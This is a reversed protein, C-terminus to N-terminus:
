VITLNFGRLHAKAECLRESPVAEIDALMYPQGLREYKSIGLRHYGLIEFRVGQRAKELFRGVARLVPPADNLGPILPMRVLVDVPSSLITELNKKIRQNPKGTLREHHAAEEAKFDFIFLDVHPLVANLHTEPVHGCTEIATHVYHGKCRSLFHGIFEYQLLPEGGSLTVGGGSHDWFARDDKIREWLTKEDIMTGCLELADSPCALACQGCGRCQRRDYRRKEADLQIAGNPCVRACEGCLTCHVRTYFLEATTHQSEPNACWQCRLPCGKFFITTRIGPGDHIAYHKIDFIMAKQPTPM